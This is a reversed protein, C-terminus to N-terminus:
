MSAARDRRMATVSVIVTRQAAHEDPDVVLAAFAGVVWGDVGVVVCGVVVLVVRCRLAKSVKGVVIEVGLETASHNVLSPGLSVEIALLACARTDAM